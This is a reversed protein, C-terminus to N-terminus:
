KNKLESIVSYLFASLKIEDKFIDSSIEKFEKVIINDNNLIKLNLIEDYDDFKYKFKFPKLKNEIKEIVQKETLM